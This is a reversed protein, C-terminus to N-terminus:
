TASEAGSDLEAVLQRCADELNPLAVERCDAYEILEMYTPLHASRVYMPFLLKKGERRTRLGAINYEEQCMDSDRYSPTLLALVKHCDDLAEYLERQWAAGPNLKHM